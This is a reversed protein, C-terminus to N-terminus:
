FWIIKNSTARQQNSTLSEELRFNQHDAQIIGTDEEFWYGSALLWYGTEDELPRM